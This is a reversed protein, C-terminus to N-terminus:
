RGSYGSQSGSAIKVVLEATAALPLGVVNSYSGEIRPIFRAALSSDCLGRGQGPRRRQRCVLCDRRGSLHSFEVTTAEVFGAEATSTRLSVGTLVEHRRGSLRALMAAADHDDRPKGLVEGDVVVATDAGLVVVGVPRVQALGAASKEAALRRV